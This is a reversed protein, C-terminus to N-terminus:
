IDYYTDHTMMHLCWLLAAREAMARESRRGHSLTPAFGMHAWHTLPVGCVGLFGQEAAVPVKSLDRPSAHSLDKGWM